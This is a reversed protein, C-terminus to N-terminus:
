APAQGGRAALWDHLATRLKPYTELRDTLAALAQDIPNRQDEPLTARL